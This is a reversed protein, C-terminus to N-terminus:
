RRALGKLGGAARAQKVAEPRYGRASRPFGRSVLGKARDCFLPVPSSPENAGFSRPSRRWRVFRRRARGSRVRSAQHAAPRQVAQEGNGRRCGPRAALQTACCGTSEQWAAGVASRFGAGGRSGSRAHPCRHGEVGRLGDSVAELLGTLEEIPMAAFAANIQAERTASGREGPPTQGTALISTACASCAM